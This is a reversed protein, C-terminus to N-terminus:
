MCYTCYEREDGRWVCKPGRSDDWIGRLFPSLTARRVNSLSARARVCVGPCTTCVELQNFYTGKLRHAKAREACIRTCEGDGCYCWGRWREQEPKEPASCLCCSVLLFLTLLVKNDWMPIKKKTWHKLCLFFGWCM